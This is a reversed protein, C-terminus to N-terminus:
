YAHAFPANSTRSPLLTCVVYRSHGLARAVGPCLAHGLTPLGVIIDAAHPKLQEALLNSLTDVVSLSAANVLLSAVAHNPQSPLQRIPLLLFQGDPLQVPCGYQWPPHKQKAEDPALFRQWYATTPETYHATTMEAPRSIYPLRSDNVLHVWSLRLIPPLSRCIFLSSFCWSLFIQPNPAIHKDLSYTCTPIESIATPHIDARAEWVNRGKSGTGTMWQMEIGM